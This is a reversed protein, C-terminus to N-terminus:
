WALPAHSLLVKWRGSLAPLLLLLIQLCVLLLRSTLTSTGPCLREQLLMRTPAYRVWAMSLGCIRCRAGPTAVKITALQAGDYEAGNTNDRVLYFPQNTVASGPDLTGLVLQTTGAAKFIAGARSAGAPRGQIAVWGQGLSNNNTAALTGGFAFTGGTYITRSAVTPADANSANILVEGDNAQNVLVQIVNGAGGAQENFKRNPRATTDEPAITLVNGNAAELDLVMPSVTKGTTLISGAVTGYGSITNFGAAAGSLNQGDKDVNIDGLHTVGSLTLTNNNIWAAATGAGLAVTLALLGFLKLKKSM